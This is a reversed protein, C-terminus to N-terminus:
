GLQRVAGNAMSSVAVPMRDALMAEVADGFRDTHGLAACARSQEVMDRWRAENAALHQMARAFGEVSDPEVVYGNVLNRVLFDCSGVNESAIIPLNFALAENVVLGWQEEISPLILALASALMTAVAEAQLFGPLDVLAAIGLAAIRARVERDLEGGGVLVLRRPPGDCLATYRKYADLLIPLNKKTVFRGVFVFPRDAFPTGDPAAVGGGMARVRDLNVTDYGSVVLRRRYGLFRMYSAQRVGGVIAGFYPAFVLPKLMERELRRQSDDFKSETMMIVRVGCLRLSYALMAIDLNSYSVGILVMDCRRLARFQHWYRKMKGIADYSQGPFLTRKRVGKVEGSPAWAYTVSTTAVEVALVEAKGSLRAAVAECRDVHYPAFQPWILGIVPLERPDAVKM